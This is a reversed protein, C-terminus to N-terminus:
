LYLNRYEEPTIGEHKKFASIFYSSSSFGTNKAIESIYKGPHRLLLRKARMLRLSTIYEAPTENYVNSFLRILTQTSVGVADALENQTIKRNYHANIIEIASLLKKEDGEADNFIDAAISAYTILEHLRVSSQLVSSPDNKYSDAVIVDCKELFNYILASSFRHEINIVFESPIVSVSSLRLANILEKAYKGSFDIKIVRWEKTHESPEYSCISEPTLICINGPTIRHDIGDNGYLVGVGDVCLMFRWTNGKRIEEWNEMSTITTEAASSLCIPLKEKSISETNTLTILISQYNAPTVDYIKKFDRILGSKTQIGSLRGAEYVSMESNSALLRLTNKLRERTIYDWPTMGFEKKFAKYISFVTRGTDKSILDISLPSSLNESIYQLVDPVSSIKSDANSTNGKMIGYILYLVRYAVSHLILDDSYSREAYESSALEFLGFITEYDHNTFRDRNIVFIEPPLGVFSSLGEAVSMGNYSIYTVMWKEEGLQHYSHGLDAPIYLIDGECVTFLEKEGTMVVGRGSLTIFLQHDPYGEPRSIGENHITKSDHLHLPMLRIRRTHM